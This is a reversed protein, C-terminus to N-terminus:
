PPNLEGSANGPRGGAAPMNGQGGIGAYIPPNDPLRDLCSMGNLAIERRILDIESEIPWNVKALKMSSSAIITIVLTALTIEIRWM